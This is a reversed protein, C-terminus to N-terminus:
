DLQQILQKKFNDYNSDVMVTQKSGSLFKRLTEPLPINEGITNEVVEGFKAPHATELFIGNAEGPNGSLYKKIGLYGVAGHPDLIYRHDRAVQQMASKTEADTFAYGTIDQQMAHHNGNYLDMMRAFNSPNGVDMANSITQRSPRPTMEGTHLYEPVVDNVNTAAVFRSIPLGM